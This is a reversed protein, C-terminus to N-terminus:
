KTMSPNAVAKTYNKCEVVVNASVVGPTRNVWSFFGESALNAFFIDIRKRGEHIEEERRAHDLAPYFLATLLDQVARHYMNAGPPGPSVDLVKRLLDDWDPLPTGAVAALADHSLPESKEGAAERYRRLVEAEEETISLNLEKATGPNAELLSKNTVFPAGKYKGKASRHQVLRSELNALERTRMYDLVFNRLYDDPDFTPTKRVVARPILLLKEDGALPLEVFDRTWAHTSRNWMPGSAISATLPVGHRRATEQTFNILQSRVVNITMDSIRDHLIGPVFLATEELDEAIGTLVARSGVLADYLDDALGAGIGSGRSQGTSLGLHAENSEGSYKLLATAAVRDRRRVAELLHDYFDELLAVSEIAWDTKLFRFAHPDVFVRTDADIHVDLFELSPQTLGLRFYESVQM